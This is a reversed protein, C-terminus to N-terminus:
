KVGTMGRHTESDTPNIGAIRCGVTWEHRKKKSWEGLLERIVDKSTAGTAQKYANLVEMESKLLEVRLEAEDDNM